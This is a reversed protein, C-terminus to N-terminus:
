LWKSINQAKNPDLIRIEQKKTQQDRKKRQIVKQAFLNEISSFVGLSQLEDELAMEDVDETGWITKGVMQNHM